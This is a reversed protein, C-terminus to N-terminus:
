RKPRNPNKPAPLPTTADSEEFPRTPEARKQEALTEQEAAYSAMFNATIENHEGTKWFHDFSENAEAPSRGVGVICAMLNQPDGEIALWLGMYQALQPRREYHPTNIAVSLATQAKSFNMQQRLVKRQAGELTDQERITWRSDDAMIADLRSCANIVSTELALKCEGIMSQRAPAGPEEDTDTLSRLMSSALGLANLVTSVQLASMSDRPPITLVQKSGKKESEDEGGIGTNENM